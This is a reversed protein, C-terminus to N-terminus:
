HNLKKGGKEKKKSSLFNKTRLQQVNKKQLIEKNFFKNQGGRGKSAEKEQKRHNRLSKSKKFKKNEFPEECEPLDLTAGVNRDTAVGM